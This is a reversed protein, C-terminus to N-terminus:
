HRLRLASGAARLLKRVQVASDHRSGQQHMSGRLHVHPRIRIGTQADVAGSSGHRSLAGGALCYM